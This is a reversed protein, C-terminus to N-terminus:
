IGYAHGFMDTSPENSKGIERYVNIRFKQAHESDSLLSAVPPCRSVSRIPAPAVTRVLLSTSETGHLNRDRFTAETDFVLRVLYGDALTEGTAM